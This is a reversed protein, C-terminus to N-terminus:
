KNFLDAQSQAYSKAKEKKKTAVPKKKCSKIPGYAGQSSNLKFVADQQSDAQIEEEFGTDFKVIYTGPNHKRYVLSDKNM